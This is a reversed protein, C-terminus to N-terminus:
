PLDKAGCLEGLHLVAKFLIQASKDDFTNIVVSHISTDTANIRYIAPKTFNLIIFATYDHGTKSQHRNLSSFDIGSFQIDYPTGVPFTGFVRYNLICKDIKIPGYSEQRAVSTNGAMTKGILNVTDDYSLDDDACAICRMTLSLVAVIFLTRNVRKM